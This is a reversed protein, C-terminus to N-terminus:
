LPAAFRSYKRTEDMVQQKQQQQEIGLYASTSDILRKCEEKAGAAMMAILSARLVVAVKSLADDSAYVNTHPVREGVNRNPHNHPSAAARMHRSLAPIIRGAAASTQVMTEMSQQVDGEAHEGVIDSQCANFVRKVATDEASLSLAIDHMAGCMAQALRTSFKKADKVNNMSFATSAIIDKVNNQQLWAGSSWSNEAQAPIRANEEAAEEVPKKPSMLLDPQSVDVVVQKATEKKAGLLTQLASLPEQHKEDGFKIVRNRRPAPKAPQLDEYASEFKISENDDDSDDEEDPIQADLNLEAEISQQLQKEIDAIVQSEKFFDENSTQQVRELIAKKRELEEMTKTMHEDDMAIGRQQLDKSYAVMKKELDEIESRLTKVSSRKKVFGRISDAVSRTMVFEDSTKGADKMYEAILEDDFDGVKQVEKEEDGWDEVKEQLEVIEEADELQLNEAAAVLSTSESEDDSRTNTVFSMKSSRSSLFLCSATKLEKCQAHKETDCCIM